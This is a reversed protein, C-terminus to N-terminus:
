MFLHSLLLIGAIPLVYLDLLFQYTGTMSLLFQYTGTMSLLEGIPLKERKYGSMM